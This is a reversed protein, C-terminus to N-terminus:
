ACPNAKPVCGTSWRAGSPALRVLSSSRFPRPAPFDRPLQLPQVDWRLARLEDMVRRDYRYGGSPTALDGPFAFVVEAM